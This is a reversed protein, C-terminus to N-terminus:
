GVDLKDFRVVGYCANNWLVKRWAGLLRSFGGDMGLLRHQLIKWIRIAGRFIWDASWSMRGDQVKLYHGLVYAVDRVSVYRIWVEFAGHIELWQRRIWEVPLFRSRVFAHIVGYGEQTRLKWYHFKVFRPKDKRGRLWGGRRVRKVFVDWDKSLNGSGPASTLTLFAVRHKLMEAKRVGSVIRRYMRGRKVCRPCRGQGSLWHKCRHSVVTSDLSAAGRVREGRFSVQYSSDQPPAPPLVPHDLREPHCWRCLVPDAEHRCLPPEVAM